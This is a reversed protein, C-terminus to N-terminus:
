PGLNRVVFRVYATSSVHMGEGSFGANQEPDLSNWYAHANAFVYLGTRLHYQSRGPPATFTVSGSPLGSTTHEDIRPAPGNQELLVVDHFSQSDILTRYQACPSLSHVGVNGWYGAYVEIEEREGAPRENHWTWGGVVDYTVEITVDSDHPNTVDLIGKAPTTAGGVKGGAAVQFGEYWSGDPMREGDTQGSVSADMTITIERGTRITTHSDADLVDSHGALPPLTVATSYSGRADLDIGGVIFEDQCRLAEDDPLDHEFCFSDGLYGLDPDPDLCGPDSVYETTIPTQGGGHLRVASFSIEIEQREDEAPNPGLYLGMPLCRAALLDDRAGDSGQYLGSWASFCLVDLDTVEKEDFDVVYGGILQTVPTLASPGSPISGTRDLDHEAATDAGTFGDGNLDYRGYDPVVPGGASPTPMADRIEEVDHEDFAGDDNVDLLARRADEGPLSLLAIFANLTPAPSGYDSCGPEGSVAALPITSSLLATVVEVPTLTPDISRLYAAVAAVQPAALSTGTDEGQATGDPSSFTYVDTGIASIDGGVFSSAELCAPVFVGLSAPDVRSARANEVVLTNNLNDLPTVGDSYTLGGLLRASAFPSSTAADRIDGGPPSDINGAPVVHLVRGELDFVDRVYEAWLEGREKAKAVDICTGGVGTCVYSYSSNVILQGTEDGLKQLLKHMTTGWDSGPFKTWDLAWLEVTDPFLGTTYHQGFTGALVGLVKYGHSSAASNIDFGGGWSDITDNVPPGQGFVDDVIVKPEHAIAKRLNWAAHAGVALQHDIYRLENDDPPDHQYNDPLAAVVPLEAEWVFDVFPEAEVTELVQNYADLSGPDEIRLV